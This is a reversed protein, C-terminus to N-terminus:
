NLSRQTLLSGEKLSGCELITSRMKNGKQGPRGRTFDRISEAKYMLIIQGKVLYRLVAVNAGDGKRAATEVRVTIAIQLTAMGTKVILTTMITM